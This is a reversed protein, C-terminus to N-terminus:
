SHDTTVGPVSYDVMTYIKFADTSEAPPTFFAAHTKMLRAAPSTKKHPSSKTTVKSSKTKRVRNRLSAKGFTSM